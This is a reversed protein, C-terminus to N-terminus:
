ITEKEIESKENNSLTRKEQKASVSRGETELARENSWYGATQGKKRSIQGVPREGKKV